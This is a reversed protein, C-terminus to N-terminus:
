FAYSVGVQAVPARRMERIADDLNPGSGLARGLRANSGAFGFDASYSWGGGVALGTYGFGLYPVTASGEAAPDSGPLISAPALTRRGVNLSGADARGTAPGLSLTARSGIMLGSTARFGGMQGAPVWSRAFYYDGMVSAGGFSSRPPPMGLRGPLADPTALSIRGQWQPWVLASAAASAAAPEAADAPALPVAQALAGTSVALATWAALVALIRASPRM